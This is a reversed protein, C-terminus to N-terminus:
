RKIDSQSYKLANGILNQLLRMLEDENIVLDIWDGLIEVKGGSNELEPKLFLLAEDVCTRSSIVQLPKVIRGIRSYDLLSLIMSDMRKAGNIAFDLFQQTEEDLKTALASEILSLYSTIMRLPQRMDHSVAYAFQELEANSRQLQETRDKIQQEITSLAALARKETVSSTAIQEAWGVLLAMIAPLKEKKVVPVEAIAAFYDTEDFGFEEQQKKFFEPNPPEVFFQGIFLNAVHIGEIVIPSACDILGNKCQCSAYGRNKGLQAYIDRDSELCRQLTETNVRHFEVCLRQWKSSALVTGTLDIIAVPLGIGTLFNDFLTNMQSFDILQLFQEHESPNESQQILEDNWLTKLPDRMQEIQPASQFLGSFYIPHETKDNSNLFSM